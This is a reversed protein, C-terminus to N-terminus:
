DCWKPISVAMLSAAEIPFDAKLRVMKSNFSTNAGSASFSQGGKLRVM